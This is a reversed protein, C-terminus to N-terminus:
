RTGIRVVGRTDYVSGTSEHRVIRSAAMILAVMPDIKESSAKKDPKVNGAPDSRVMMNDCCWSLARHGGHRLKGKLVRGLLWKTPESMDKFGQGIPVFTAVKEGDEGLRQVLQTAGWRDYGIEQIDFKEADAKITEEIFSFDIWNGPTAIVLGQKLWDRYPVGDDKSRTEITDEPIWIRPVVELAGDVPFAHVLAAMDSQDALDLGSYCAIGRLADEDVHGSCVEWKGQPLYRTKSGTWICLQWRQFESQEAPVAEAKKARAAMWSESVTVGLGPHARKWTDPEQWAEIDEQEEVGFIVGLFTPDDVIGSNVKKTYDRQRYCVTEKDFGANTIEILLPQRRAGMSEKCASLMDGTPQEHLEDFIVMSPNFGHKGTEGKSLPTWIAGTEPCLIENRYEKIILYDALGLPIPSLRDLEIMRKAILWVVKAQKENYAASYLEGGQEDDTTMVYLGDAAEKHSKGTKKPMEAYAEQIIRYGDEDVTGFILRTLRDEWDLWSDGLVSGVPGKTNPCRSIFELAARAHSNDPPDDWGPPKSLPETPALGIV